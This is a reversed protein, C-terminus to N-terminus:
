CARPKPADQMPRQTSRRRKKMGPDLAGVDAGAELLARVIETYGKYAAIILPSDGNADPESVNVGQEILRKVTALDNKQVANMLATM